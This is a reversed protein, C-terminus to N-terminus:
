GLIFKIHVGLKHPTMKDDQPCQTLLASSCNGLTKQLVMYIKLVFHTVHVNKLLPFADFPMLIVNFCDFHRNSPINSAETEFIRRNKM